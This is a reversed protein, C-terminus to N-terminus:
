FFFSVLAIALIARCIKSPAKHGSIFPWAPGALVLSGAGTAFWIGDFWHSYGIIAVVGTRCILSLCGTIWLAQRILAKHAKAKSEADPAPANFMYGGSILGM